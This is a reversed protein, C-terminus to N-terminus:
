GKNRPARLEKQSRTGILDANKKKIKRVLLLSIVVVVAIAVLVSVVTVVVVYDVTRPAKLNLLDLSAGHDNPVFELSEQLNNVM